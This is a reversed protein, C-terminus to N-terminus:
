LRRIMMLGCGWARSAGFGNRLRALFADPDTVTLTGTVDAVSIQIPAAGRRPIRVQRYGELLFDGLRYGGSEGMRALWAKTIESAVRMRAERRQQGAPVARLADM